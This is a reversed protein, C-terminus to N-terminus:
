YSTYFTLESMCECNNVCVQPGDRDVQIVIRIISRPYSLVSIAYELCGRLLNEYEREKHTVKGNVTRLNVEIVAKHADEQRRPVESHYVACSVKTSKDVTFLSSGSANTITSLQVAMGPITIAPKVM